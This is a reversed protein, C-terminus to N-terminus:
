RITRLLHVPIPAVTATPTDFRFKWNAMQTLMFQVDLRRPSAGKRENKNDRGVGPAGLSPGVAAAPHPFIRLRRMELSKM